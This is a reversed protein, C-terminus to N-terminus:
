LADRRYFVVDIIELVWTMACGSRFVFFTLTVSLWFDYKSIMWTFRFSRFLHVTINKTLRLTCSVKLVSLNHINSLKLRNDCGWAVWILHVFIICVMHRDSMNIKCAYHWAGVSFVSAHYELISENMQWSLLVELGTKIICRLACM